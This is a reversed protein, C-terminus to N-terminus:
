QETREYVDIRVNGYRYGEVLHMVFGREDDATVCYKVEEGNLYVRVDKGDKRLNAYPLEGPDGAEVSVRM